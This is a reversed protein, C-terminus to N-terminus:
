PQAWPLCQSRTPCCSSSPPGLSDWCAYSCPRASSGTPLSTTQINWVPSGTPNPSSFPIM